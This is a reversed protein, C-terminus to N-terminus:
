QDGAFLSKVLERAEILNRQIVACIIGIEAFVPYRQTYYYNTVRECLLRFSELQPIFETAYDLLLSEQSRSM